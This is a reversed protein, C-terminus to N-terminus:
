YGLEPQHTECVTRINIMLKYVEVENTEGKQFFFRGSM